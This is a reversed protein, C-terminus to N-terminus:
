SFPVADAFYPNLLESSEPAAIESRVFCDRGGGSIIEGFAEGKHSYNPARLSVLRHEAAALLEIRLKKLDNISQQQDEREPPCV